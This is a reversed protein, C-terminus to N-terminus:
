NYDRKNHDFKFYNGGEYVGQVKNEFQNFFPEKYDTSQIGKYEQLGPIYVFYQINDKSNGIFVGAFGRGNIGAKEVYQLEENNIIDDLSVASKKWGEKSLKKITKQNQWDTEDVRNINGSNLAIYLNFQEGIYLKFVNDNSEERPFENGYAYKASAKFIEYRKNYINNWAVKFSPISETNFIPFSENREMEFNNVAKYHKRYARKRKKDLNDVDLPIFQVDFRDLAMNISMQNQPFQLILTREQNSQYYKSNNTIDEGNKFLKLEYTEGAVLPIRPDRPNELLINKLKIM